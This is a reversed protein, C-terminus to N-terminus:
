PVVKLIVVADSTRGDQTIRYVFRDTVGPVTGPTYVVTRGAVVRVTGVTPPTVISVAVRRSTWDNRLVPVTTPTRGSVTLADRVALPSAVFTGNGVGLFTAPQGTSQSYTLVDPVGNRDADLVNITWSPRGGAASQLPVVTGDDLVVVVGSSGSACGRVYAIAVDMAGDRDFDALRHDIPAGCYRVPGPRLTGTGDNLYTALGQGQDTWAYLDLRGDGNFDALGIFNPRRIARFGTWVRFDRLVLLDPGAGGPRGNFWGVVLEAGGVGDLDVAVGLDPCATSAGGGPGPYTYERAPLYGGGPRGFEVRVACGRPPADDLWARDLLNDGNLDGYLPRGPGDARATAVAGGVAIITVTATVAAIRTRWM